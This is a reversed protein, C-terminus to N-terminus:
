EEFPNHIQQKLRENEEELEKVRKALDKARDAMIITDSIYLAPIAIIWALSVIVAAFVDDKKMSYEHKKYIYFMTAAAAIAYLIKLTLEM